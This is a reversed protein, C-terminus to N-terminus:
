RRKNLNMRSASTATLCRSPRLTPIMSTRSKLCAASKTYVDAAAQFFGKIFLLVYTGVSVVGLTLPSIDYGFAGAGSAVLRFAAVIAALTIGSVAIKMASKALKSGDFKQGNVLCNITLGYIINTLYVLAFAGFACGAGILETFFNTM